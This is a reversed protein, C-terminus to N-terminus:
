LMSIGLLNVIAFRVVFFIALGMILMFPMYKIGAKENGRGILGILMSGFVTTIIIAAVSFFFLFDPSVSVQGFHLFPVKTFAEPQTLVSFQGMVDMLYSSLGYLIPAGVGGAFGVFITYMMIHAGVEKRIAEKMRINSANEDLLSAFQGGARVGEKILRVTRDLLDSKVDRTLEDLSKELPQGTLIQKGVNKLSESLPGFEPRASLLLARSPIYGARSNAAM